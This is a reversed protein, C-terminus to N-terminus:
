LDTLFFDISKELSYPLKGTKHSFDIEFLKKYLNLLYNKEFYSAQKKFKSLQWPAMRKAEEIQKESPNLQSILLRFQRVIMFFILETEMNRKLNHFYKISAETNKPKLNELFIFLSQPFSFNQATSNKLLSLNAKSVESSEWFIIELNKNANIYAIIKKFELANAKNKSFFNEIFFVMKDQFLSKNELSQFLLDFTLGEGNILVSNKVKNKEEFFLNRSSAVDNGHIILIM